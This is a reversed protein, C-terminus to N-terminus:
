NELDPVVLGAEGSHRSDALNACAGQSKFPSPTRRVPSWPAGRAYTSDASHQCHRLHRTCPKWCISLPLKADRTISNDSGQMEVKFPVLNRKPIRSSALLKHAVNLGTPHQGCRTGRARMGLTRGGQGAPCGLKSSKGQRLRGARRETCTGLTHSSVAAIIKL